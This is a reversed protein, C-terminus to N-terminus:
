LWFRPALLGFLMFLIYSFDPLFYVLSCLCFIAFIQSCTFWLINVSYLRFRPDLLGFFMFLIYDLDPLLYVLSSSCFIALIQSCTFWLTYVSHLQFRPPLLGFSMFRIGGQLVVNDHADESMIKFNKFATLLQYFYFYVVKFRINISSM